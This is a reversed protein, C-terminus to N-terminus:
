DEINKQKRLTKATFHGGNNNSKKYKVMKAFCFWEITYICDIGFPNNKM